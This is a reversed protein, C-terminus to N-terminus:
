KISISQGMTEKKLFFYNTQYNFCIILKNREPLYSNTISTNLLIEIKLGNIIKTEPCNTWDNKDV